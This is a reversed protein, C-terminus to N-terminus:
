RRDRWTKPNRKGHFIAIVIIDHDDVFYYVGYPFRRVLARRVDAHVLPFSEPRRRIASLADDVALFFEDRLGAKRLEYYQMAELLEADAEPQLVLRRNM